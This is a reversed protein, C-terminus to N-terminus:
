SSTQRCTPGFAVRPDGRSDEESRDRCALDRPDAAALRALFDGSAVIEGQPDRIPAALCRVDEM